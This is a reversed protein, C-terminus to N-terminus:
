EASQRTGYPAKSAERHFGQLAGEGFSSAPHRPTNHPTANNEPGIRAALVTEFPNQAGGRIRTRNSTKPSKKGNPKNRTAAAKSHIAQDERGSLTSSSGIDSLSRSPQYKKRIGM